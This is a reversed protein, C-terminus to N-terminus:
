WSIVHLGGVFELDPWLNIVGDNYGFKHKYATTSQSTLIQIDM